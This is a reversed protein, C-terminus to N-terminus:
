FLQYINVHGGWGGVVTEEGSRGGIGREGGVFEGVEDKVVCGNKKEFVRESVVGDSMGMKSMIVENGRLDFLQFVGEVAVKLFSLCQKVM